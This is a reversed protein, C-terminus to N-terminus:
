SNKNIQGIEKEAIHQNAAELEKHENVSDGAFNDEEKLPNNTDLGDQVSLEGDMNAQTRRKFTKKEQKGM